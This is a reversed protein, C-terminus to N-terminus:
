VASSASLSPLKAGDLLDSSERGGGTVLAQSSAVQRPRPAPDPWLETEGNHRFQKSVDEIIPERHPSHVVDHVASNSRGLCDVLFVVQRANANTKEILDVLGAIRNTPDIGM